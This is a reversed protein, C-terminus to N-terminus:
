FLQSSTTPRAAAPITKISFQPDQWPRKL